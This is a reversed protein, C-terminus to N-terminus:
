KLFFTHLELFSITSYSLYLKFYYSFWGNREMLSFPSYGKLNLGETSPTSQPHVKEELCMWRAWPGRKSGCIEKRLEANPLCDERELPLTINGTVWQTEELEFLTKFQLKYECVNEQTWNKAPKWHYSFSLYM